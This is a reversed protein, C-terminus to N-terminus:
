RSTTRTRPRPRQAPAELADDFRRGIAHGGDATQKLIGGGADTQARRQGQGLYVVGCGDGYEDVQENVQRGLLALVIVAALHPNSRFM